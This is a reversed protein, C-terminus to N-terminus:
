DRQGLISTGVFVPEPVLEIGYEELVGDHVAGALEVIDSASAGGRNTLALVHKTSLSAPAGPSVSWGKSFGAHDILWAASTKVVGPVKPAPKNPNALTFLSRDEVEFRPADEPLLEAAEQDTLIPNTFFSGASWTDHDSPDLVMGKSRRLDLVAERVETTDARQGIEVGLRKALERYQIPASRDGQQLQFDVQLVVWRGTPGWTRGGGAEPNTLSQKLISDRYGLRLTSRPITNIQGTLRDYARIAALNEAVERGYAGINQVPAAGVSGPIGSLAELGVLGSDVTYKVLDDWVTGATVRLTVGGCMSDDVPRTDARADKIVLGPFPEDAVVLNSGGGLVLIDEGQQDAARVAEVIASEDALELYDRPAGGVRLTTLEALDPPATITM